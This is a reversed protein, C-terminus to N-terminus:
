RKRTNRGVGGIDGCALLLGFQTDATV